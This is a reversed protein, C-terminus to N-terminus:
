FEDEIIGIMTDTLKQLGLRNPHGDQDSIIYKKDKIANQLPRFNIHSNYCTSMHPFKVETSNDLHLGGRNFITHEDNHRDSHIFGWRVIANPNLISMNNALEIARQTHCQFGDESNSSMTILLHNILSRYMEAFPIGVLDEELLSYLSTVDNGIQPDIILLREDITFNFLYLPKSYQGKQFRLPQMAIDLNCAGPQALNEFPIDYHNALKGPWTESITIGLENRHGETFSDGCAIIADFNKM